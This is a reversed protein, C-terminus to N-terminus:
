ELGLEALVSDLLTDDLNLADAVKDADVLITKALKAELGQGEAAKALDEIITAAIGTNLNVNSLRSALWSPIPGSSLNTTALLASAIGSDGSSQRQRPPPTM